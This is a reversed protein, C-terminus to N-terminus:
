KRCFLNAKQSSKSVPMGEELAEMHCQINTLFYKYDGRLKLHWVFFPVKEQKLFVFRFYEVGMTHIFSGTEGRGSRRQIKFLPAKTERPTFYARLLPLAIEEEERLHPFMIIKYDNVLNILNDLSCGVNLSDVEDKVEKMKSILIIHDSQMKEPLKARTEIFPMMIDEENSHHTTVLDCHHDWIENISNIAWAPTGNPFKKAINNLGSVLNNVEKRIMSHAYMWGDIELPHKWLVEKDPKFKESIQWRPDQPNITMNNLNDHQPFALVQVRTSLWKNSEKQIRSQLHTFEKQIRNSFGLIMMMSGASLVGALM